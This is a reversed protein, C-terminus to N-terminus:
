KLKRRKQYYNILLFMECLVLLGVKVIFLNIWNAGNNTIFLVVPNWEAYGVDILAVTQFHDVLCFVALAFFLLQNILM